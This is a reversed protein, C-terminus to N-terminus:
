SACDLWWRVDLDHTVDGSLAQFFHTAITVCCSYRRAIFGYWVRATAVGAACDSDHLVINALPQQLRITQECALYPTVLM